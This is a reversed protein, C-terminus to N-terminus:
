NRLKVRTGMTRAMVRGEETFTTATMQMEVVDPTATQRRFRLNTVHNALATVLTRPQLGPNNLESRSCSNNRGTAYTIDNSWEAIVGNADLVTGDNDRDQPVRFVIADDWAGNAAPRQIQAPQSEVLELSMRDLARRLESTLIAQGSGSAWTRQASLLVLGMAASLIGFLAVVILLETLSFGENKGRM